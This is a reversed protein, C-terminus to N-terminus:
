RNAAFYVLLVWILLVLIMGIWEQNQGIKRISFGSFLHTPNRFAPFFIPVERAYEGYERPFARTLKEEEEAIQPLYFISFLLLYLILYLPHPLAIATLGAGILFTGFYLPHRMLAYPGTEAIARNKEIVGSAWLRWVMGLFVLPTGWLLTTKSGDQFILLILPYIRTVNLRFRHLKIRM